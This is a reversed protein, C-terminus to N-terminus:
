QKRESRPKRRKHNYVDSEASDPPRRWGMRRVRQTNQQCGRGWERAPAPPSQKCAEAAPPKPRGVGASHSKSAAEAGFLSRDVFFDRRGAPDRARRRGERLAGSVMSTIAEAPTLRQYLRVVFSAVRGVRLTTPGCGGSRLASIECREIPGEAPQSGFFM